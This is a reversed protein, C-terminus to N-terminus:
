KESYARMRLQTFTSISHSLASERSGARVSSGAKEGSVSLSSSSAAAFKESASASATFAM